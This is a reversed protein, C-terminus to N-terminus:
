ITDSRPLDPTQTVPRANQSNAAPTVAPTGNLSPNNLDVNVLADKNFAAAEKFFNVMIIELSAYASSGSSGFEHLRTNLSTGLIM